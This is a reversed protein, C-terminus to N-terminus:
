VSGDDDAPEWNGWPPLKDPQLQAKSCPQSLGDNSSLVGCAPCQFVINYANTGQNFSKEVCVPHPHTEHVGMQRMAFNLADAPSVKGRAIDLMDITSRM